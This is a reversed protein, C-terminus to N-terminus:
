WELLRQVLLSAGIMNVREGLMNKLVESGRRDIFRVGSFDLLIKKKQALLVTCAHDLEPVWEGVVRGEVKLRITQGVEEVTTIRLM